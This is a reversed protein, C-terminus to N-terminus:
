QVLKGTKMAEVAAIMLTLEDANWLKNKDTEGWENRTLNLLLQGLRQEPFREWLVRIHNLVDSIEQNTARQRM